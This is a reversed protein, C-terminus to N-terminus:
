QIEICCGASHCKLRWLEIIKNKGRQIEQGKISIQNRDHPCSQTDCYRCILSIPYIRELKEEHTNIGLVHPASEGGRWLQGADFVELFLVIVFFSSTGYLNSSIQKHCKIRLSTASRVLFKHEM